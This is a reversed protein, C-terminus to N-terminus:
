ILSEIVASAEQPENILAHSSALMRYSEPSPIRQVAKGFHHIADQYRLEDYAAQGEEVHLRACSSITVMGGLVIGLLLSPSLSFIRALM